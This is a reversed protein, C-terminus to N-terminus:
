YIKIDTPPEPKKGGCSVCEFAGVDWVGDVGRINGDMDMNYPASLIGGSRTFSRLRFNGNKSDVFPDSTIIYNNKCINASCGASVGSGLGYWLNNQVIDNAHSGPFRIHCVGSQVGHITNNYVKWNNASAGAASVGGDGGILICGDSYHTNKTTSIVNGYIEGNDFEGAGGGWIGIAATCGVRGDAPDGPVAQCGDRMINNRIKINTSRIQGVIIEKQWSPGIWNHEITIQDAGALQFPCDVNHIYCRSVTWDTVTQGFGGLYVATDPHGESFDQSATGGIDVFRIMVHDGTVGFNISHTRFAPVHFGYSSASNWASENRTQGDFVIYDTVLIILGSFSAQGDGYSDSWGTDTGHDAVTAKKITVVSLGYNPTNFNYGGYTGDSVYYSDGRTLTDPLSTYANVWDSGSNDGTAGARIYVSAAKVTMVSLLLIASFFNFLLFLKKLIASNESVRNMIDSEKGFFM